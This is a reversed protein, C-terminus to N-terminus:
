EPATDQRAEERDVLRNIKAELALLRERLEAHRADDEAEEEGQTLRVFWAAVSATVVGILAIGIVMLVSAVIRGELTVPTFDGYGVTTVTVLAWWMADAFNAITAGSHGREAGLMAVAGIWMLLATSIGVAQSTQVAGKRSAVLTGQTFVALIKLPRAVPLVVAIIEVPHTFVWRWRRTAYRIRIVIDVAFAIWVWGQVVLLSSDLAAPMGDWITRTSWVVLFVLALALMIPDAKAVYSGYKEQRSPM